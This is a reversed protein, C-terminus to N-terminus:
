NEYFKVLDGAQLFTPSKDEPTFLQTETKGIIQWGGPSELSYIGTQRGAIGVSGKPTKLRPSSKRPAAIREDIEGMYAFGPLFGLMYVRYTKATFIEIVERTKLNNSEAVFELDLACEADFSVPIEILRAENESIEELNRLGKEAFNKVADFANPFTPSNKRVKFVDYFITLSAYAPVTEIFGEFKNQEFYDALRIIRRNLKESIENGLEITLANEGLPFIKVQNKIRM